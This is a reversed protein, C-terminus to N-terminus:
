LIQISKTLIHDSIRLHVIYLGPLLTNLADIRIESAGSLNDVSQQIVTQGLNNIVRIELNTTELPLGQIFFHDSVPNPYISIQSDIFDVPIGLCPDIGVTVYSTATCGSNDTVTLMYTTTEEPSCIPNAATPNDLNVEPYWSFFYDPTGGTAVIDAGLTTDHNKCILTDTGAFAQMQEPQDLLVTIVQAHGAYAFLSILGVILYKKMTFM